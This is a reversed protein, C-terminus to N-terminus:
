NSNLQVNRLRGLYIRQLEVFRITGPTLPIPLRNCIRRYLLVDLADISFAVTMRVM